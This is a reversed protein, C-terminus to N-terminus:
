WNEPLPRAVNIMGGILEWVERKWIPMFAADAGFRMAIATSPVWYEGHPPLMPITFQHAAVLIESIQALNPAAIDLFSRIRNGGVTLVESERELEVPAAFMQRPDAAWGGIPPHRYFYANVGHRGDLRHVRQAVLLM